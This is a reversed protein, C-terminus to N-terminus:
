ITAKPVPLGRRTLEDQMHVYASPLWDVPEGPSCCPGDQPDMQDSWSVAEDYVKLALRELMALAHGIHSPSMDEIRMMAGDRARWYPYRSRGRSSRNPPYTSPNPM